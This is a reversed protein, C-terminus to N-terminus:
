GTFKKLILSSNNGGFAYANNMAIDVQMERKVNPVFDLDCEPDKTEHNITPPVVGDKIALACAIAEIASAAGMTHGLMSKISSIALNKAHEGFVKKISITEAKDNAVTGTGHASMYQVDEPKIKASTLAKEMASTVGNGDPHPITIHYGDCSLGYGLIEAYINANRAPPEELSELVLMGAGEGVLLGKRNKDFPQCIDPAIANLRSFGVFAVKSFPDSGGALMIDTRGLKILDCAYGIAYNGAACATPIITSPGKFGFEISINSPMNVCPHKLFLNPDVSDDGKEHRVYNVKELIQIEGATTGISVGAREPDISNLGVNSDEIALKAAAIAFQSGKGIERGSGNSVYDDYNFDKVFCGRHVKFVSTDFSTVDSVGSTGSILANWFADKKNGIPSIVGLGTIVIRKDM